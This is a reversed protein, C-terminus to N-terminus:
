RTTIDALKDIRNLQEQPQANINEVKEVMDLWEELSTAENASMHSYKNEEEYSRDNKSSALM